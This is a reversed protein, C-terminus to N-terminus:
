PAALLRDVFGQADRGDPSGNADMDAAARHEPDADAGLLVAVFPGIDANNVLGDRNVDGMADPPLIIWTQDVGLSQLGRTVGGPWTVVVEDMLTAADLGVHVTLDNQSKYNGGAQIERRYWTAGVRVAVRAGVAFRNQGIGVVRFKAWHRTEGEHNVYFKIKANDDQVVLDLDGDNDIDAAALGFSQGTDNVSLLPADDVCPWGASAVYLRNAASMNCVYLDELGDNDYDFFLAGWGVANSQVGAATASEVFVGLGQNMYLVNGQPTNTCYLDFFGNSDFDGVGVGMSNIQAGTGSAATVDVFTGGVNEFLRNQGLGSYGKDTSLYLDSDADNDYDFFVAQFTYSGDDVGLAPAVDVFTGDGQNRYFRNPVTSPVGSASQTGTRNAVYLDLRGDGDYDAWACGTGAGDDGVGAITTVDAFTFAGDNRMLLNPALWNSFYLDLDGDDDYDAATIGSPATVAPIGSTATRDTFFGAGDNEFIGVRGDARGLAVLDPDGDQDLDVLAVGSGFAYGAGSGSVVHYDVGRAVAEETFPQPALGGAPVVAPVAALAIAALVQTPVKHAFVSM